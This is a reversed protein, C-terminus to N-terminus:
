NQVHCIKFCDVSCFIQYENQHFKCHFKSSITHLNQYPCHHCAEQLLFNVSCFHYFDYFKTFKFQNKGKKLFVEKM